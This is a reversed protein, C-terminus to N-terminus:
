GHEKTVRGKSHTGVDTQRQPFSITSNTGLQRHAIDACALDKERVHRYRPDLAPHFEHDDEMPPPPDDYARRWSKVKDKGYVKVAEKKNKGVALVVLPPLFDTACFALTM